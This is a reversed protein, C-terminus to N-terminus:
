GGYTYHPITVPFLYHNQYIQRAFELYLGGFRWPKSFGVSFLHYTRMVIGIFIIAIHFVKQKIKNEERIKM